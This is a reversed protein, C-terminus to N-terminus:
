EGTLNNRRDLLTNIKKMYIHRTNSKGSIKLLESLPVLAKDIDEISETPVVPAKVSM